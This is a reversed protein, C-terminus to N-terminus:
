QGRGRRLTGGHFERVGHVGSVGVPREPSVTIAVDRAASRVSDAVRQLCVPMMLFWYPAEFYTSTMTIGALLYAGIGITMCYSAWVVTDRHAPPLTAHARRVRMLSYFANLILAAYLVIGQIGLESYCRVYASHADRGVHQPAYRGIMSQFNGPGVGYWYDQFMGISGEWVDLRAQASSEREEESATVTSLRDWFTDDTLAFAGVAAIVLGVFVIKRHSRPAMLVALAVAGGVALSAGRSRTLIVGNTALVGSALCLLKGKWGSRVFQVGIIPLCAALYAGLANSESFDAGGVGELRGGVGEFMWEPATFSQWGLFLAGVVFTWLLIDLRQPTTVVHTLILCFLAVKTMKLPAYDMPDIEQEPPLGIAASLWIVAVFGILLWEQGTLLTKWRSLSRYHIVVSLASCLGLLFSYRIGWHSIEQGWWQREPGIQYHLMYAVVGVLPSYLAGGCGAAFAVLFLLTKLPM